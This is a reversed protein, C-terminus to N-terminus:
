ESVMLKVEFIINEFYLSCIPGGNLFRPRKFSGSRIIIEIKKNICFLSGSTKLIKKGASCLLM